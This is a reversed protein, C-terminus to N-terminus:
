GRRVSLTVFKIAPGIWKHETSLNSKSAKQRRREFVMQAKSRGELLSPSIANSEVELEALSLTAPNEITFEELDPDYSTHFDYLFIDRLGPFGEPHCSVWWARTSDIVIRRINPRKKGLDDQVTFYLADDLRNSETVIPLQMPCIIDFEWNVFVEAPSTMKFEIGNIKSNVELGFSLCYNELGVSRSERCIQLIPPHGCHTKYSFLLEMGANIFFDTSREIDLPVVWIDLVREVSCAEKWIIRRIELALKPFCTFVRTGAVESETDPGSAVESAKNAEPEAKTIDKLFHPSNRVSSSNSSSSSPSSAQSAM